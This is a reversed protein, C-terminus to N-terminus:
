YQKLIIYNLINRLLMYVSVTSNSRRTFSSDQHKEADGIRDLMCIGLRLRVDSLLGSLLSM